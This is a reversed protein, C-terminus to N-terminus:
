EYTDNELETFLTKQGIVLKSVHGMIKDRTFITWREISYLTVKKNLIDQRLQEINIGLQLGRNIYYYHPDNKLTIAIDLGPAEQIDIVVGEIEILDKESVNRVPRFTQIVIFMFGVFISFACIFWIKGAKGM